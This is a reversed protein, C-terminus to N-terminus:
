FQKMKVAGRLSRFPQDRLQLRHIKLVRCAAALLHNDSTLRLPRIAALAEFRDSFDSLDVFPMGFFIKM